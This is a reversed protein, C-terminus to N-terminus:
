DGSKGTELNSFTKDIEPISIKIRILEAATNLAKRDMKDIRQNDLYKKVDSLVNRVPARRELKSVLGSLYDLLKNKSSIEAVAARHMLEKNINAIKQKRKFSKIIKEADDTISKAPYNTVIDLCIDYWESIDRSAIVIKRKRLISAKLNKRLRRMQADLENRAKQKELFLDAEAGSYILLEYTMEVDDCLTICNKQWTSTINIKESGPIKIGSDKAITLWEPDNSIEVVLNSEEIQAAGAASAILLSTVEASFVKQTYCNRFLEAAKVSDGAKFYIKAAVYSIEPNSAFRDECGEIALVANSYDGREVSLKALQFRIEDIKEDPLLDLNVKLSKFENAYSLAANFDAVVMSNSLGYLLAESYNTIFTRVYAPALKAANHALKAANHYCVLAKSINSNSLAKKATDAHVRAQAQDKLIKLRGLSQSVAHSSAFSRTMSEIEALIKEYDEDVNLSLTEQLMKGARQETKIDGLSALRKQADKASSTDKYSNIVTRYAAEAKDFDMKLLHKNGAELIKNARLESEQAYKDRLTKLENNVFEIESFTPYNDVIKQYSQISRLIQGNFFSNSAQNLLERSRVEVIFPTYEKEVDNLKKIEEATPFRERAAKVIKQAKDFQKKRLADSSIKYLARVIIDAKDEVVSTRDIQKLQSAANPIESKNLEQGCVFGDSRIIFTKLGTIGKKNPSAICCFDSEDARVIEFNYDYLTPSIVLSEEVFGYNNSILDHFYGYESIGNRNRDLKQSLKFYNEVVAIEHLQEMVKTENHAIKRQTQNAYTWWGIAGAIIVFWAIGIYIAAHARRIDSKHGGRKRIISLSIFGLIIGVLWGIILLPGFLSVIFAVLPMLGVGQAAPHEVPNVFQSPVYAGQQNAGCAPCFMTDPPVPKGCSWCPRVGTMQVGREQITVAPLAAESVEEFENETEAVDFLIYCEGAKFITGREISSDDIKEKNIFTGTKSHLDTIFWQEDRIEIKFHHSSITPENLQIDNDGKSGVTARITEIEFSQENEDNPHITLRVLAM